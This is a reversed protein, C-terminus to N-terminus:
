GRDTALISYQISSWRQGRSVVNDRLVGELTMGLKVMVRRSAANEVRARAYIRHMHLRGFGFELLAAGIETALGRGVHDHHVGWGIEAQRWAQNRVTFSAEGMLRGSDKEVAALLYGSRPYRVQQMLAEQVRAKVSQPTPPDILTHELYALTGWYELFGSCDDLTVERFQLRESEFARGGDM